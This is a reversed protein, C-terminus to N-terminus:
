EDSFEAGALRVEGFSYSSSDARRRVHRARRECQDVFVGTAASRNVMEVKVSDFRRRLCRSKSEVLIQVAVADAHDLPGVPEWLQQWVMSPPQADRAAVAVPSHNIFIRSSLERARITM